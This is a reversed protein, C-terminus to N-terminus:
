PLVIRSPGREKKVFRYKTAKGDSIVEEVMKSQVLFEVESQATDANLRLNRYYDRVSWTEEGKLRAL